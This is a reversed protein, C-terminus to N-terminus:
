KAYSSLKSVIRGVTVSLDSLAKATSPNQKLYDTVRKELDLMSAPKSALVVKRLKRYKLRFRISKINEKNNLADLITTEKHM